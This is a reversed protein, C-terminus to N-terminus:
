DGVLVVTDVLCLVEEVLRDEEEATRIEVCVTYASCLEEEACIVAEYGIL